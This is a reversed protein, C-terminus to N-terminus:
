SAPAPPPPIPAPAPVEKQKVPIGAKFLVDQVERPNLRSADYEVTLADLTPAVQIYNIGYVGHVRNISELLRDDLARTLTYELQVKTM